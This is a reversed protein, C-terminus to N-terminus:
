SLAGKLLREWNGHLVAEAEAKSYGAELLGRELSSVEELPLTGRSNERYDIDLGLAVHEIGVLDTAYSIHRILDEASAESNEKLFERVASLGILGNREAVAKLQDDTFNRRHRCLAYVNGHSILVTREFGEVIDWFSKPSAHAADVVIGLEEMIKLAKKGLTTVGYDKDSGCGSALTNDDNWTLSAMRVGYHHLMYLLDVNTGIGDLGEVSLFLPFRGELMNRQYDDYRAVLAIERSEKLEAALIGLYQMLRELASSSDARFASEIWVSLIAAGITSSLLKPIFRSALVKREGQERLPLVENLMDSHGDFIYGKNTM